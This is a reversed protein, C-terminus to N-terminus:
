NRTVTESLNMVLAAVQSWAAHEAVPIEEDRPSEGYLILQSALERDAYRTHQKSLLELLTASETASPQRGTTLRFGYRVREEASAGGHRIVREALKRSAEFFGVENMQTLAQLPTNTRERSATCVERDPADFTIM